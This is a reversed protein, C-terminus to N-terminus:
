VGRSSIESEQEFREQAEQQQAKPLDRRLEKIAVRRHTLEEEALYVRGFSGQGISDLIRYKDLLIQGPRLTM